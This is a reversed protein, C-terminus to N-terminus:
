GLNHTKSIPPLMIQRFFIINPRSATKAAVCLFAFVSFPLLIGNKLVCLITRLVADAKNRLAQLTSICRGKGCGADAVSAGIAFDPNM